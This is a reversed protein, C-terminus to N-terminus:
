VNVVASRKEVHSICSITFIATNRGCVKLIFIITSTDNINKIPRAYVNRIFPHGTHFITVFLVLVFSITAAVIISKTYKTIRRIKLSHDLIGILVVQTKTHSRAPLCNAIRLIFLIPTTSDFSLNLIANLSIHFSKEFIITPRPIDTTARITTRAIM